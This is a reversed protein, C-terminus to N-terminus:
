ARGMRGALALALAQGEGAEYPAAGPRGWVPGPWGEDGEQRAIVHLHFQRVMNGLAGLNIKLAGTQAKLAEATLSAEEALLAREPAALDFLEVLGPREPVLIVWPWRRDNMLLARCLPLRALPITDAELRPDLLFSSM